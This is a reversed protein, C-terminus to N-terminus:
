YVKTTNNSKELIIYIKYYLISLYIPKKEGLNYTVYNM